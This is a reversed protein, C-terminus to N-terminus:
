TTACTRLFSPSSGALGLYMTLSGPTPYRRSIYFGFANGQAAPNVGAAVQKRAALRPQHFAKFSDSGYVPFLAPGTAFRGPRHSPVM